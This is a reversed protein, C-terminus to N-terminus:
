VEGGVARLRAAAVLTSLRAAEAELIRRGLGTLAYTKRPRGPEDPEPDTGSREIWGDEVLRKIATYLTSVSLTERNDSLAQVDKAIAYGHKPGPALSLLIYFTAETLPLYKQLEDFPTMM